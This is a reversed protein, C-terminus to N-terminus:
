NIRINKNLVKNYAELMKKLLDDTSTGDYAVSSPPLLPYPHVHSVLFGVILELLELLEEGRVMSSTNPIVNSSLNQSEFKYAPNPPSYKANQESNNGTKDTNTKFEVKSKGPITEENSLLFLSNAGLIAVSNDQVEVTNNRYKETKPEFPIEPSFKADLVLGYGPSLDTTSVQIKSVFQQMNSYSTLDISSQSPSGKLLNRIRKSPRYYFPFQIGGTSDNTNATTTGNPLNSLLLTPNNVLTVVQDSIFKTFEELNLASDINFIRIKSATFGSLDTDYNFNSTKTLTQETPLQYITINGTFVQPQSEPNYIDYELLYKIQKDNRQLRFITEEEGIITKTNFKSLQLFARTEDIIPINENNPLRHKGARLLVDNEKIILDSTGRGKLAVDDPEAFVGQNTVDAYTGDLNKINPYKRRDNQTGSSLHTRSSSYDENQIKTPSSYPGILYFRDRLNQKSNNFYLILVREGIKPVQNVFYPLLPLFILPDKISWKGNDPNQSNKDFGEVASELAPLNEIDPHVRIRGLMLPDDNDLVRGYYINRELSNDSM